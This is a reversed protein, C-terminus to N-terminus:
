RTTKGGTVFFALAILLRQRDPFLEDHAAEMLASHAAKGGHREVLAQAQVLLDALSREVNYLINNGVIVKEQAHITPIPRNNISWRVAAGGFPSRKIEAYCEYWRIYTEEKRAEQEAEVMPIIREGKKLIPPLFSLSFASVPTAPYFAGGPERAPQFMIVRYTQNDEVVSMLKAVGKTHPELFGRPVGIYTAKIWFAEESMFLTEISSASADLADLTLREPMFLPYREQYEDSQARLTDWGLPTIRYVGQDPLPELLDLKELSHITVMRAGITTLFERVHFGGQDLVDEPNTYVRAATALAKVQSATLKPLKM